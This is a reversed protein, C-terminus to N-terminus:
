SIYGYKRKFNELDKGALPKFLYTQVNHMDKEIFPIKRKYFEEFVKCLMFTHKSSNLFFQCKIEETNAKFSVYNKMGDSTEYESGSFKMGSYSHVQFELNKINQIAYTKGAISIEEDTIILKNKSVIIAHISGKKAIALILTIIVAVGFILASIIYWGIFAAVISLGVGSLVVISATNTSKDPNSEVTYTMFEM